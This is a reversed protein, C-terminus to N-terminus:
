GEWIHNIWNYNNFLEEATEANRFKKDAWQSYNKYNRYAEAASIRWARKNIDGNRLDMEKLVLNCEELTECIILHPQGYESATSIFGYNSIVVYYHRNM